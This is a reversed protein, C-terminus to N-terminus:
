CIKCTVRQIQFLVKFHNIKTFKLINCTLSICTHLVSQTLSKYSKSCVDHSYHWLLKCECREAIAYLGEFLFTDVENRIEIDTLGTGDEDRAELLIDLFDLYKKNKLADPDKQQSYHFLIFSLIVTLQYISNAFSSHGVM